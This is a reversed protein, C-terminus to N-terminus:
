AARWGGLARVQLAAGRFAVGDFALMNSAEVASRLQLVAGRGPLLQQQPHPPPLFSCRTVPRGPAAAAGHDAALGCFFDALAAESAGHPVGAVHLTTTALLAPMGLPQLAAAAAAAAWQVFHQRQADEPREQHLQLGVPPPPPALM